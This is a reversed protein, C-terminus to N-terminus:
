ETHIREGLVWDTQKMAWGTLKDEVQLTCMLGRLMGLLIHTFSFFNFTETHGAFEVVLGYPDRV